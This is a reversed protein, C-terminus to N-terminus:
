TGKLEVQILEMPQDSTNEPLHEVADMWGAAGAPFNMAETSGDPYTMKAQVDTLAVIVSGPHGHMSSADGPAYRIRVVRVHENEFEVTYHGPDVALPDSRETM